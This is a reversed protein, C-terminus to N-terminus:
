KPSDTAMSPSTITAPAEPYPAPPLTDPSPGGPNFVLDSVDDNPFGAPGQFGDALALLQAGPIFIQNPEVYTGKGRAVMLPAPQANPPVPGVEMILANGLVELPRAPCGGPFQTCLDLPTTFGNGIVTVITGEGGGTPFFDDILVPPLDDPPCPTRTVSSSLSLAKEDDTAGIECDSYSLLIKPGPLVFCDIDVGLQDYAQTILACIAIACSNADAVDLLRFTPLMCDVHRESCWARAIIRLKDGVQWNGDTLDIQIDGNEITSPFVQGGGTQPVPEFNLGGAAVIGDPAQQWCWVPEVVAGGEPPPFDPLGLFGEGVAIKLPGPGVFPGLPLLVAKVMNNTAQLARFSVGPGAAICLANPDEGFNAGVITLVTGPPGAKPFFDDIVPICDAPNIPGWGALLLGLDEGGVEGNGTFDGPGPTGWAGLLIGVDAGNVVLDGNLDLDCPSFGAHCAAAMSGSVAIAMARMANNWM